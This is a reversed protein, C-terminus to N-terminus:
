RMEGNNAWMVVEELKTRAIARRRSLPGTSPVMKYAEFIANWLENAKRKIDQTTPLDSEVINFLPAM